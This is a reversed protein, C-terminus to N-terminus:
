YPELDIFVCCSCCSHVDHSAVVVQWWPWPPRHHNFDGSCELVGLIMMFDCTVFSWWSSIGCCGLSMKLSGIYPTVVRQWWPWPPQHRRHNGSFVFYVIDLLKFSLCSIILSLIYSLWLHINLLSFTCWWGSGGHGHHGSATTTASM